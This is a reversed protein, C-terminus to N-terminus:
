IPDYVVIIMSKADPELSLALDTAEMILVAPILYGYADIYNDEDGQWFDYSNPTVKSRWGDLHGLHGNYFAYVSEAPEKSVLFVYALTDGFGEIQKPEECSFAKAGPLLPYPVEGAGPLREALRPGASELPPAWLGSFDAAAPTVAANGPEAAVDRDDKQPAPAADDGNLLFLSYFLFGGVLLILVAIASLAIVGGKSKKRVPAAQYGMQGQPRYASASTQPTHYDSPSYAETFLGGVQGAPAWNDMSETWVLDAPVIAGTDAQHKLEESSYPGWREGEKFLYWLPGM